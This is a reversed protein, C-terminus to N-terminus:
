PQSQKDHAAPGSEQALRERIKRVRTMMQEAEEDRNLLKLLEAYRELVMGV